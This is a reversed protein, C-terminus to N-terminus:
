FRRHWCSHLIRARTVMSGGNTALSGICAILLSQSAPQDRLATIKSCLHAGARALQWSRAFTMPSGRKGGLQEM